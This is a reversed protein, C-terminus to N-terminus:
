CTAGTAPFLLPPSAARAPATTLAVVGLADSRPLRAQITVFVSTWGPEATVSRTGAARVVGTCRNVVRVEVDVQRFDSSPTIRATARVMCDSGAACETVPTLTVATVDGAQAPALEPVPGPTRKQPGTSPTDPSTGESPSTTDKPEAQGSSDDRGLVRDVADALPERALVLGTGLLAALVLLVATRRWWRHAGRRRWNAESLRGAPLLAPVPVPERRPKSAPRDRPSSRRALTTVLAAIEARTRAMSTADGVSGLLADELRLATVGAPEDDQARGVQDLAAMLADYRHDHRVVPRDANAALESVLGHARSRDQPAADDFGRVGALAGPAWDTLRPEGDSGVVVNGGSLRGHALGAAHLAAVGHLVQIAVYAAQVPTLTAAGMLRALSVGEVYESVLWTADDLEAAGLLPVLQPARVPTLEAVQPLAGQEGAGSELGAARAPRAAVREGDAHASWTAEGLQRDLELAEFWVAQPEDVEGDGAPRSGSVLHAM